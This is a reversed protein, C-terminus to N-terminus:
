WSSWWKTRVCAVCRWPMHIHYSHSIFTYYLARSYIYMYLYIYMYSCICMYTYYLARLCTAAARAVRRLLAGCLSLLARCLEGSVRLLARHYVRFLLLGVCAFSVFVCVRRRPLCVLFGRFLCSGNLLTRYWGCFLGLCVWFLCVCVGPTPAPM